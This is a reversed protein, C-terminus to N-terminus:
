SKVEVGSDAEEGAGEGRTEGLDGGYLDGFGGKGREGGGLKWVEM